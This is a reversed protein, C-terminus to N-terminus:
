VGKVVGVKCTRVVREITFKGTVNVINVEIRTARAARVAM